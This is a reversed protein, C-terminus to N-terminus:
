NHNILPAHGKVHEVLDADLAALMDAADQDLYAVWGNRPHMIEAAIAERRTHHEDKESLNKARAELEAVTRYERGAVAMVACALRRYGDHSGHKRNQPGYKAM